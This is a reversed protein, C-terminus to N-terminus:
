GFYVLRDEAEADKGWSEQLKSILAVLQKKEKQWFSLTESIFAADSSDDNMVSLAESRRKVSMLRRYLGFVDKKEREDFFRSEYLNSVNTDPQLVEELIACSDAIKEYVKKRVARLVNGNDEIDAVEFERDLEAFGPLKYKARLQEYKKATEEEM